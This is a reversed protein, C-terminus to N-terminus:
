VVPTNLISITFKNKSNYINNTLIISTVNLMKERRLIVLFRRFKNYYFCLM